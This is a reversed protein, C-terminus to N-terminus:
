VPISMVLLSTSIAETTMSGPVETRVFLPERELFRARCHTELVLLVSHPEPSHGQPALDETGSVLTGCKDVGPQIDILFNLCLYAKYDNCHVDIEM